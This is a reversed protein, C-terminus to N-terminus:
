RIAQADRMQYLAYVASEPVAPGSSEVYVKTLKWTVYHKYALPDNAALKTARYRGGVLGGNEDRLPVCDSEGMLAVDSSCLLGMAVRPNSADHAQLFLTNAPGRQNSDVVITRQTTTDM